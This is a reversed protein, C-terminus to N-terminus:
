KAIVKSFKFLYDAGSWITLAFAIYFYFIGFNHMNVHFLEWEIGFLWYYDYHLLLGPLATMQIITKYKGLNSADIVIGESSAISRLGTVLMERALICFVAWAPVRDLPILMIMAAMVLLKDALPDLFKGLVTVVQWRRALWGDLWDTIAAVGFVAAAWICNSRSEFLLLVVLLPVAAIRGLTLLNPLNLLGSRLSM